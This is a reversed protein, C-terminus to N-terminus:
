RVPDNPGDNGILLWAASAGLAEAIAVIEIDTCTRVQAEIKYIDQRNPIWRGNTFYALRGCVADHTLGLEVRRERVRPGVLNSEGTELRPRAARPM